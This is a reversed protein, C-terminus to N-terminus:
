TPKLSLIKEVPLKFPEKKVLDLIGDSVLFPHPEGNALSEFGLRCVEVALPREEFIEKGKYLFYKRHGMSVFAGVAYVCIAAVLLLKLKKNETVFQAEFKDFSM